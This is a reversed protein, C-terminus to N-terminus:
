PTVKADEVKAALARLANEIRLCADWEAQAYGIRHVLSCSTLAADERSIEPRADREMTRVALLAAARAADDRAQRRDEIAEDLEATVRALDARLQAIEADRAYITAVLRQAISSAPPSTVYERIAEIQDKTLPEYAM